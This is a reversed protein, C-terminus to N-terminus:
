ATSIPGTSAGLLDHAAGKSCGHRRRPSARGPLALVKSWTTSRRGRRTWAGRVRRMSAGLGFSCGSGTGCGIEWSGAPGARGGAQRRAALLGRLRDLRDDLWERMVEAGLPEGGDYSNQAVGTMNFTPDGQPCWRRPRGGPRRLPGALQEVQELARARYRRQAAARTGRKRCRDLGAAPKAEGEKVAATLVAASQVPAPLVRAVAQRVGDQRKLVAEVEGLEVRVGRM